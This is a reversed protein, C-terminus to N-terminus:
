RSSAVVDDASILPQTIEGGLNGVFSQTDVVTGYVSVTTGKFIGTTDGNYGVIIGEVTIGDPAEVAIQLQASYPKPDNDGLYAKEGTDFLAVVEGTVSVKEGIMKGTRAALERVDVPEYGPRTGADASTPNDGDSGNAQDGGAPASPSDGAVEVYKAAILPQTVDGGLSSVFSQTDVVKGWITVVSGKFIGDTVGNFGIIIGEVTAGDPALVAVQIQVNYNKPDKDGLRVDEGTDFIATVEGTFTIKDGIVKGTRAALERVDAL